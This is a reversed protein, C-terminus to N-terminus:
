DFISKPLKAHVGKTGDVLQTIALDVALSTLFYADDRGLGKETVLFDIMERTAMRAAEDLDPHLGMTFYHTPTEARPRVLTRDTHLIVTVTGRLSTELATLAVEGDGQMGHGDGFSLLAGPVHVPLYLTTGAILDKNDLNGGHHAPPNSNIRGLIPSPAVGMSGFFPALPLTVGPAFDATGADPDFRTLRLMTYPFDDPLTGAGPLFYSLGFPHLFEFEEIRIELVDGPEAGEIYIPGTLPHAGPGRDTVAAEVEKLRDPVEDERAGALYLRELGRALLTEVHVTDGSEITLVPELSGSYYGWHVNGPALPLEHTRQPASWATGAALLIILLAGMHKM